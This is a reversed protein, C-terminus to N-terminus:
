LESAEDEEVKIFIGTKCEPIEKPLCSIDHEWFYCGCCKDNHQEIHQFKLGNYEFNEIM